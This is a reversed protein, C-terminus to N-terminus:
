RYRKSVCPHCIEKQDIYVKPFKPIKPIHDSKNYSGNIM